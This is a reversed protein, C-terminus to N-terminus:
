PNAIQSNLFQTVEQLAAQGPSDWIVGHGVNPIQVATNNSVHQEFLAVDADNVVSELNSEGYVLLTPCALQPLLQRPRYGVLAESEFNAIFRQDLGWVMQAFGEPDESNPDMEKCHALVDEFSNSLTLTQDLWNFWGQIGPFPKLGNDREYALTPELLVLAQVLDASQAAVGVAIAGGWSYGALVVLKEVRAEIFDISDSVFQQFAYEPKSTKTKGHGRLDPAYIHWHENLTPIFEGWSQWNLSAGHLLVLSKGNKAGEAYNIVVERNDFSKEVM